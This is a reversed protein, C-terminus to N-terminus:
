HLRTKEFRSQPLVGVPADLGRRRPAIARRLLAAFCFQFTRRKAIQFSHQTGVLFLAHRPQMKQARVSKAANERIFHTQAFRQLGQRKNLSTAASTLFSMSFNLALPPFILGENGRSRCLRM